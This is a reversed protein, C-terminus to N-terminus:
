NDRALAERLENESDSNWYGCELQFFVSTYPIALNTKLILVNFLKASSDLKRIIDEHMITKVPKGELISFLNNRYDTIGKANKEPVFTMEKDVFINADVHTSKSILDSVYEVTELQSANITITEVAPNSQQPYAADVIVIWNRHGYLKLKAELDTKWNSTEKVEEILITEREPEKGMNCACMLALITIAKVIKITKM